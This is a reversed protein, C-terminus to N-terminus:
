HYHLTLVLIRLIPHNLTPPPTNHCQVNNTNPMTGKNQQSQPSHKNTQNTAGFFHQATAWYQTQKKCILRNTNHYCVKMMIPCLVKNMIHSMVKNTNDFLGKKHQTTFCSIKATKAHYRRQINASYQPM